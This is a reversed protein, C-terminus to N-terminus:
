VWEDNYNDLHSFFYNKAEEITWHDLFEKEHIKIPLQDIFIEGGNDSYHENGPNGSFGITKNTTDGISNEDTWAQNSYNSYYNYGTNGNTTSSGVAFWGTNTDDITEDFKAVTVKKSIQIGDIINSVELQVYHIIQGKAHLEFKYNTSSGQMIPSALNMTGNSLHINGNVDNRYYDTLLKFSMSGKRGLYDQEKKTKLLVDSNDNGNECAVVITTPAITTVLAGIGLFLKKIKM